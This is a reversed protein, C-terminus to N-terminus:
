TSRARTLAGLQSRESAAFQAIEARLAGVGLALHM